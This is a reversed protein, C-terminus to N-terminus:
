ASADRGDSSDLLFQDAGEPRTDLRHEKRRLVALIDLVQGLLDLVPYLNDM